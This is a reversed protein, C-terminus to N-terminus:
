CQSPAPIPSNEQVLTQGRIEWAEGRWVKPTEAKPFAKDHLSKSESSPRCWRTQLLVWQIPRPGVPFMTYLEGQHQLVRPRSYLAVTSSLHCVNSMCKTPHQTMHGPPLLVQRRDQQLPMTSVKCMCLRHIGQSLVRDPYHHQLFDWLDLVFMTFKRQWSYRPKRLALWHSLHASPQADRSNQHWKEDKRRVALEPFLQWVAAAWKVGSVALVIALLWANM